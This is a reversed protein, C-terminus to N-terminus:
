LVCMCGIDMCACMTCVPMCACVVCVCQTCVGTCASCLGTCVGTCTHEVCMSCVCVTCVCMSCVCAGMHVCVSDVCVWGRQGVTRCERNEAQSVCPVRIRPVGERYFGPLSSASAWGASTCGPQHDRFAKACPPQPLAGGTEVGRQTQGTGVLTGAEGEQACAM